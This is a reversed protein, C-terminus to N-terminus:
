GRERLANILERKKYAVRVDAVEVTVGYMPPMTEALIYTIFQAICKELEINKSIKAKKHNDIKEIDKRKLQARDAMWCDLVAERKKFAKYWSEPLEVKVTYDSITCNALNYDEYHGEFQELKRHFLTCITAM